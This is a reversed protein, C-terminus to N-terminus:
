FVAAPVSWDPIPTLNAGAPIVWYASSSILRSRCSASLKAPSRRKVRGSLSAVLSTLCFTETKGDVLKTLKSVVGGRIPAAQSLVEEGKRTHALHQRDNLGPAEVEAEPEGHGSHYPSAPAASPFGPRGPRAAM